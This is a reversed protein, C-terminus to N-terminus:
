WFKNYHADYEFGAEALRQCLEKEDIDEASCLESLSEYRDRLLMNMQSFLMMPDQPLTM